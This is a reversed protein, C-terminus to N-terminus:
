LLFGDDCRHDTGCFDRMQFGGDCRQRDLQCRFLDGIQFFEIHRVANYPMVSTVWMAMWFASPPLTNAHNSCTLLIPQRSNRKQEAWYGKGRWGMRSTQLITLSNFQSNHEGIKPTFMRNSLVGFAQINGIKQHTSLGMNSLTTISTTWIALMILMTAFGISGFAANGFQLKKRTRDRHTQSHMTNKPVIDALSRKSSDGAHQFIQM